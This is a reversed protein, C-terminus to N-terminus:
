VTAAQILNKLLMAVNVPGVGGPIPTYFAAIDKIEEEDYDGHLKGDDGRHMGVGVLIVGKKLDEPKIIGPKGVTSIIIDAQKLLAKPNETKSDIVSPKISHKKLLEITPGGGTEGKGVVVINKSQLWQIFKPDQRENGGDSTRANAAPVRHPDGVLDVGHIFVHQLIELVAAALPMTFPSNPLFADIDKSVDTAQNVQESDIHDPLPRQIIIGHVTEDENLRKISDILEQNEIESELKVITAKAGIMQAKLDKQRVYATSAPDTGVLIVVLHPTIGKHKLATVQETLEDFIESAIAKGDIKM